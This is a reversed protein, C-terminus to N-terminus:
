SPEKIAVGQTTVAKNPARTAVNKIGALLTFTELHKAAVSLITPNNEGDVMKARYLAWQIAAPVAEESFNSDDEDPAVECQVAVYVTVKPPISPYFKISTGDGALSFERLRFDGGPPCPRGPWRGAQGTQRPKLTWLVTGCEDSQGLVSDKNLSLCPCIDYFEKHGTFSLVQFQSFLDSRTQSIIQCAEALYGRLQDKSWTTFEHGPAADNLDVALRDLVTGM